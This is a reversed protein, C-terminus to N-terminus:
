NLFVLSKTNGLHCFRLFVHYSQETLVRVYAMLRKKAPENCFLFSSLSSNLCGFNDM